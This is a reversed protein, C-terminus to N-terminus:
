VMIEEPLLEEKVKNFYELVRFGKNTLRYIKRNGDDEEFLFDKNLLIRLSQQLAIWSVNAKYMIHTPKEVGEAVEHLIDIYTELKSRRIISTM